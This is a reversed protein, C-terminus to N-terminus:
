DNCAYGLMLNTPVWEYVHTSLLVTLYRAWSCLVIEGALARVYVARESTPRVVLWPGVEGGVFFICCAGLFRGFALTFWGRNTLKTKSKILNLLPELSLAAKLNTYKFSFRILNLNCFIWLVM